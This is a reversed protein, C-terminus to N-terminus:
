WRLPLRALGRLFLSPRFEPEAADLELKPFRQVLSAIATQIELRALSSGLCFHRGLGFAFHSKARRAIDLRDPDAYVAPDRNAAGNIIVCVQGAPVHVGDLDLDEPGVRQSIQVSSDWRLM